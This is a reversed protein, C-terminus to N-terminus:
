DMGRGGGGLLIKLDSVDCGMVNGNPREGVTGNTGKQEGDMAVRWGTM